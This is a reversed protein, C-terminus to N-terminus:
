GPGQRKADLLSLDATKAAPDVKLVRLRYKGLETEEGAKMVLQQPEEYSITFSDMGPTGMEAVEIYDPSVWRATLYTAGEAFMEPLFYKDVMPM